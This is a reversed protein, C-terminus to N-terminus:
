PRSARLAGLHCPNLALAAAFQERASISNGEGLYGLGGVYHVDATRLREPRREGFKAFYDVPESNRNLQSRAQVILDAFIRAADETNGLKQLALAKYYRGESFGRESTGAATRYAEAALDSEDAAAYAEGLLYYIEAQRQSRRPQGVEQNRPYLLAGAFSGAAREPDGSNLLTQGNELCADVYVDHLEGSGEWNHFHRQRLLTLAEDSRGAATLLVILRTAADDRQEVVARHSSLRDLRNRLATGAAEYQVDLEYLLRANKPDLDVAKELSLIAKLGDKEHQAYALGLNRHTLAFSPDLARSKEWLTIAKAPQRDYYANGLYYAARADGPQQLLAEQLILVEAYSGPFCFDAPLRAAIQYEKQAKETQGRKATFYARCYAVLTSLQIRSGPIVLISVDTAEEWFGESAYGLPLELHSQDAGRTAMALRERTRMSDPVLGFQRQILSLEHLARFNLPHDALIDNVFDEADRLRGLRRVLTVRLDLARPNQGGAQLSKNVLELAQEYQGQRAAIQALSYYAPAEWGQSWAARYFADFAADGYGQADLAVGLYYFAEGDKPRVYNATARAIANSFSTAAEAWRWQRCLVLGLATNARYDGPDRRLIEEYYPAAEFSPSYLQEIRQGTYFLEDATAYDKPSKPREVPKPMSTGKPQAPQYALIEQGAGDRLSIRVQERTTGAPLVMDEVLANKPSLSITKELIPTGNREVRVKADIFERTANFAVRAMGNTIELNLAADRNANKVGGLNRIPYWWHKWERVQGPQLWSYDPQNDSWAGAMLELYPGDGDSLIDSWLEGEPGNGWEFFKKGPAVQHESWQLVGAQKGHDYGGFWNEECNWAFFSVPSPHNKWWSIDVGRTYDTGGYIQRAIPWSAFEPKAHQVAWETGPPFLVQYSENAAVAPNIWFLIPHALVTPNCVRMSMEIDSRGPHLTVGVSWRLGHRLETEGVWVTKSGNANTTTTWDVSMFSTARHHHPVNWEVGGSIWAGLMGILAPKIVNQRYFFNYGNGKDVATFIRGGLEPLVSIAVFENELELSRYTKDVKTDTLRDTVPYPYFTARAGQYTRGQYFRPNPDPPAVEYTPMTRARETLVVPDDAQAPLSGYLAASLALGPALARCFPLDDFRRLSPWHIM